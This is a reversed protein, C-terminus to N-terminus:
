SASVDAKRMVLNCNGYEHSAAYVQTYGRYVHEEGHNMATIVETKEPDSFLMVGNVVSMKDIYVFISMGDSSELIHGTLETGDNLILTEM